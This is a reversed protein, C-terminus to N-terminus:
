APLTEDLAAIAFAAVYVALLAGGIGYLEVGALAAALTIFPGLHMSRAEVRHQVVLYEFAQWLVFVVIVALGREPSIATALAAIPLAGIFAGLLPVVDWLGVWLGLAAAGRVGAMDAVLYGLLGAALSMLISGSVYRFTRAYARGAIATVRDRRAPDRIQGLAGAVLREGHLIFFLSLVGTALFAVGRTAAARVADATKGGQLRQPVDAVFTKTRQALKVNRALEGYRKSHELRRAAAPASQQLNRTERVVTDVLSYTILGVTALTVLVVVAVAVARPVRRSLGTVLPHLLSAIIAAAAMWGLVRTSAAIIRLVALTAGFM